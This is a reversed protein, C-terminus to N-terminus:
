SHSGSRLSSRQPARARIHDALRLALAVITLTPNAFGATPFVSAGALYLNDRGHVRGNEDVVGRGPDTHMRTTGSHHHANPDPRLHDRIDVSGIGADELASAITRRLRILDNQEPERWAWHLDVLPMGLVDRTRGLVMRNEPDPRQEVNLIIRFADYLAEPAATRSWGYGASPRPMGALRVRHLFRALVGGPEPKV